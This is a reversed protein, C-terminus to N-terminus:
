RRSAAPQTQLQTGRIESSDHPNVVTSLTNPLTYHLPVATPLTRWPGDLDMPLLPDIELEIRGDVRGDVRHNQSKADLNISPNIQPNLTKLVFITNASILEIFRGDRKPSVNREFSRRGTPILYDIRDVQAIYGPAIRLYTPLNNALPTGPVSGTPNTASAELKYLSTHEGDQRLGTGFRRMGTALPDLDAVAQDVPKMGKPVQGATQNTVSVLFLLILCCCVTNVPRDM